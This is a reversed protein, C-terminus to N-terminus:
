SLVAFPFSSWGKLLSRALPSLPTDQGLPSVSFVRLPSPPPPPFRRITSSSLFLSLYNFSIPFSPTPFLFRFSVRSLFGLLTLPPSSSVSIYGGEPLDILILRRTAPSLDPICHLLQSQTEVSQFWPRPRKIQLHFPTAVVWQRAQKRENSAQRCTLAAPGTLPFIRRRPSRQRRTTGFSVLELPIVKSLTQLLKTPASVFDLTNSIFTTTTNRSHFARM